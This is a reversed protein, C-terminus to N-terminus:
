SYTLFPPTERWWLITTGPLLSLWEEKQADYDAISTQIVPGHQYVVTYRGSEDPEGSTWLCEGTKTDIIEHHSLEGNDTYREVIMIDRNKSM